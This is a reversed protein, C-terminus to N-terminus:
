ADKALLDKAKLLANRVAPSFISRLLDDIHLLCVRRTEAEPFDDDIEEVALLYFDTVTNKREDVEQCLFSVIKGKVGAEEFAEREVAAQHKEGKEVHGSPVIWEGPRKSSSVAVVRTPDLGKSQKSQTMCIAGVRIEQGKGNLLRPISPKDISAVSSHRRPIHQPPAFTIASMTRPRIRLPAMSDVKSGCLLLYPPPEVIHKSSENKIILQHVQNRICDLSGLTGGRCVKVFQLDLESKMFRYVNLDGEVLMIGGERLAIAAWALIGKRRAFSASILVVDYQEGEIVDQPDISFQEDIRIHWVNDQMKATQTAKSALTSIKADSELAVVTAGFVKSLHRARDGYASGVELIFKPAEELEERITEVVRHDVSSLHTRIDLLDAAKKSKHADQKYHKVKLWWLLAASVFIQTALPVHFSELRHVQM